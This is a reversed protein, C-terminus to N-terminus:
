HSSAQHKGGVQNDLNGELSGQLERLKVLCREWEWKNDIPKFSLTTYKKFIVTLITKKCNNILEHVCQPDTMLTKLLLQHGSFNALEKM